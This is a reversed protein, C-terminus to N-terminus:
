NTIYVFLFKIAAILGLAILIAALIAMVWVLLYAAAGILQGIRRQVQSATVKGPLGSLWSKFQKLKDVM